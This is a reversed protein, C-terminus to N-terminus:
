RGPSSRGTARRFWDVCGPGSRPCRRPRRRHHNAFVAPGEVGGPNGDPVYGAGIRDQVKTWATGPVLTLFLRVLNKSWFGKDSLGFIRELYFTYDGFVLMSVGM